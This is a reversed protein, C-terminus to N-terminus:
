ARNLEELSETLKERRFQNRYLEYYRGKLAMLERHSGSELIKGGDIVLIRDANRVTSLRHAIIFSTRGRLLKDAATQIRQEMETDISSTAEDLVFIAPDVLIARAFSILQKQGTSMNSGGEGADTDYGKELKQIIQCIASKSVGYQRALDIQKAGSKWSNFIDRKEQNSLKALVIAEKKRIEYIVERCSEFSIRLKAAIRMYHWGKDLLEKVRRENATLAQPIPEIAIRM